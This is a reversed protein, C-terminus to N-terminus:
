SKLRAFSAFPCKQPASGCRTRKSLNWVKAENDVIELMEPTTKLSISVRWPILTSDISAASVGSVHALPLVFWISEIFRSFNQTIMEGFFYIWPRRLEFWMPSALSRRNNRLQGVNSVIEVMIRICYAVALHIEREISNFMSSKWTKSSTCSFKLITFFLPQRGAVISCDELAGCQVILIAFPQM